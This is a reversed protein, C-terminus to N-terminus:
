RHAVLKKDSAAPRTSRPPRREERISRVDIRLEAITRDVTNRHVGIKRAAQVKNGGTERLVAIIFQKKFEHVADSYRIGAHYMHSVLADLQDMTAYTGCHGVPPADQLKLRPTTSGGAWQIPCAPLFSSLRGRTQQIEPM